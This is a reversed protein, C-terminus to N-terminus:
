RNGALHGVCRALSHWTHVNNDFTGGITSGGISFTSVPKSERCSKSITSQHKGKNSVTYKLQELDQAKTQIFSLLITIGLITKIYNQNM